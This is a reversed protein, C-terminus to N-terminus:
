VKVSTPEQATSTPAEVATTDAVSGETETRPDSYLDSEDVTSATNTRPVAMGDPGTATQQPLEFGPTWSKLENEADNLILRAEEAKTFPEHAEGPVTPSDDLLLLLKQAQKALIVQKEAREVV